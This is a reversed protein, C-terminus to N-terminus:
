MYKIHLVCLSTWNTRMSIIQVYFSAIGKFLEEKLATIHQIGIEAYAMAEVLVAWTPNEGSGNKWKMLGSQIAEEEDQPTNKYCMQIAEHSLGVGELLARGSGAANRSVFKRFLM